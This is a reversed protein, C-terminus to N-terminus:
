PRTVQAARFRGDRHAARLLLFTPGACVLLALLGAEPGFVGGTIASPGSLTTALLGDPPTDSGSLAVGFIGAHTFNWAFHLGIPLWLSRTALYAAATMTGGTLAISLAGWLTANANVLHTLGFLASSAAIAVVTGAREELVRLVVGRFLVEEIVAVGSTAGASALFGGFSGWALADVGGLVAVLLMLATFLAAGLLAGRGLLRWRGDPAAEPVEDRLEVYRSLRRYCAVCAAALALGVPLALVPVPAVLRNAGTVAALVAFLAVLLVPVRFSRLRARNAPVETPPTSDPNGKSRM